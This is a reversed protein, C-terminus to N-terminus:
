TSLNVCAVLRFYVEYVGYSSIYNSRLYRYLLMNHTDLMCIYFGLVNPNNYSHYFINTSVGRKMYQNLRVEIYVVLIIANCNAQWIYTKIVSYFTVCMCTPLRELTRCALSQASV